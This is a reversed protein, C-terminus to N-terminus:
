EMGLTVSTNMSTLILTISLIGSLAGTQLWNRILHDTTLHYRKFHDTNADQIRSFHFRTGKLRMKNSRQNSQRTFLSPAYAVM